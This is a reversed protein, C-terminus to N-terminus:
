VYCLRLIYGPVSNSITANCTYYLVNFIMNQSTIRTISKHLSFSPIFHQFGTFVISLSNVNNTVQVNQQTRIDPLDNLSGCESGTGYIVSTTMFLSSHYNAASFYSFARRGKYRPNIEYVSMFFTLKSGTVPFSHPTLGFCCVNTHFTLYM